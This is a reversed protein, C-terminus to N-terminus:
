SKPPRELQFAILSSKTPPDIVEAYGCFGLPCLKCPCEQLAPTDANVTLAAGGTNCVDLTVIRTSNDSPSVTVSFPVIMSLSLFILLAISVQKM